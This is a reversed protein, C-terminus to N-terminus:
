VSGDDAGADAGWGMLRDIFAPLHDNKYEGVMGVCGVGCGSPQDDVARMVEHLRHSAVGGARHTGLEADLRGAIREWGSCCM